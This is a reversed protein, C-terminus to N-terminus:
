HLDFDKESHIIQSEALLQTGAHVYLKVKLCLTDVVGFILFFATLFPIVSAVFYLGYINSIQDSSLMTMALFPAGVLIAILGRAAAKLLSCKNPM